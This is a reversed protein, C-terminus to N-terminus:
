PGVDTLHVYNRSRRPNASWLKIFVLRTPLIRDSLSWLSPCCQLLLRDTWLQQRCVSGWQLGGSLGCACLQRSWCNSNLTDHELYIARWKGFSLFRLLERRYVSQHSSVAPPPLAFVQCIRAVPAYCVPTLPVHLSATQLKFVKLRMWLPLSNFLWIRGETLKDGETGSFKARFCAM